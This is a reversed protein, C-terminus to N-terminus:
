KLSHKNVVRKINRRTRIRKRVIRKILLSSDVVAHVAIMSYIAKQNEAKAVVYRELPFFIPRGM